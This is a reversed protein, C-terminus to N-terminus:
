APTAHKHMQYVVGATTKVDVNGATITLYDSAGNPDIGSFYYAGDRRAREAMHLMHGM